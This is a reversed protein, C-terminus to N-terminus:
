AKTRPRKAPRVLAHADRLLSELAPWDVAVDLWAGIWGRGGVYPPRFYRKPEARALVQQAGPAAALWLSPRSEGRAVMAFNKGGSTFVPMHGRSIKEAADPLGLCFGRARRLAKAHKPRHLPDDPGTSPWEDM